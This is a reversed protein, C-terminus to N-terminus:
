RTIIRHVTCATVDNDVAVTELISTAKECIGVHACVTSGANILVFGVRLSFMPFLM